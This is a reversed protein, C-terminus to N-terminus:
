KGIIEVDEVQLQELAYNHLKSRSGEGQAKPPYFPTKVEPCDKFVDDLAARIESLMKDLNTSFDPRKRITHGLEILRYFYRNALDLLEEPINKNHNLAANEHQLCYELLAVYFCFPKNSLQVQRDDLSNSLTREQLNVILKPHAPLTEPEQDTSSLPDAHERPRNVLLTFLLAALLPYVSLGDFLTFTKTGLRLSLTQGPIHLEHTQAQSAFNDDPLTASIGQLELARIAYGQQTAQQNLRDLYDRVSDEDAVSNMVDNPLRLWPLDLAIRKELALSLTQAQRQHAQNAAIFYIIQLMILSVLFLLLSNALHNAPQIKM